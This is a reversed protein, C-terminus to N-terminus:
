INWSDSSLKLIIEPFNIFLSTYALLVIMHLVKTYTKRILGCNSASSIIDAFSSVVMLTRMFNFSLISISNIYILPCLYNPM